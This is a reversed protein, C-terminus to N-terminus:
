RKKTIKKKRKRKEKVVKGLMGGFFDALKEAGSVPDKKKKHMNKTM